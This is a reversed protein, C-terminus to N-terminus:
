RDTETDGALEERLAGLARWQRANVANPTSDMAEAVEPNRMGLFFKMEIVRRQEPPLKAIAAALALREDESWERPLEPLEARPETRTRRSLEDAIVHRAIGYLWAVFPVGTARYRPLCVWARTFVEAVADDVDAGLHVRAFRYVADHHLRFVQGFADKDGDKAREILRVVPDLSRVDAHTGVPVDASAASIYAADQHQVPVLSPRHTARM